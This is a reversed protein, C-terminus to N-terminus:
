GRSGSRYGFPTRVLHHVHIFGATTLGYTKGFDFRCAVCRTGYHALCRKRAEPDREYISREARAVAGEVFTFDEALGPLSGDDESDTLFRLNQFFYNVVPVPNGDDLWHVVVHWLGLPDLSNDGPASELSRIVFYEPIHEDPVEVRYTIHFQSYKKEHDTRALRHMEAIQLIASDIPVRLELGNRCPVGPELEVRARRTEM